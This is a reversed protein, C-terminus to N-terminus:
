EGEGNLLRLELAEVSAWVRGQSDCINYSILLSDSISYPDDGLRSGLRFVAKGEMPEIHLGTYTKDIYPFDAKDGGGAQSWM